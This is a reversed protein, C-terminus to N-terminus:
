FDCAKDTCAKAGELKRAEYALDFCGPDSCVEFKVVQANNGIDVRLGALQYEFGKSADFGCGRAISTYTDVYWSGQVSPCGMGSAGCDGCRWCKVEKAKVARDAESGSGSPLELLCRVVQGAAADKLETPALRVGACTTKPKPQKFMQFVSRVVVKGQCALSMPVHYLAWKQDDTAVWRPNSPTTKNNDANASLGSSIGYAKYQESGTWPDWGIYTQVFEDGPIVGCKAQKFDPATCVAQANATQCKRYWDADGAGKQKIGLKDCLKYSGM